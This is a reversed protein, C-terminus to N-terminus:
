QAGGEKWTIEAIEAASAAADIRTYLLLKRNYISAVHAQMAAALSQVSAPSLQHTQDNADIFFSEGGGILLALVNAEAREDHIIDLALEPVHLRTPGALAREKAADILLKQAARAEPLEWDTWQRTLRKATEKWSSKSYAHPRTAEIVQKYGEAEAYNKLQAETPNSIHPIHTLYRAEGGATLQAYTAM